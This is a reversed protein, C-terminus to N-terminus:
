FALFTLTYKSSNSLGPVYSVQINGANYTWQPTGVSGLFPTGDANRVSAVLCALPLASAVWSFSITDFSGTSYSAGTSITTSFRRAVINDGFSVGRDLVAITQEMFRNLVTLIRPFWSPADQFDEVLLRAPVPAQM